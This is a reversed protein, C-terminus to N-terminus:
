QEKREKQYVLIANINVFYTIFVVIGILVKVINVTKESM